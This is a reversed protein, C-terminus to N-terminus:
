QTHYRGLKSGHDPYWSSYFEIKTTFIEKLEEITTLPSSPAQEPRPLINVIPQSLNKKKIVKQPKKSRIQDGAKGAVLM